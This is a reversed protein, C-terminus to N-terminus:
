RVFPNRAGHVGFHLHCGTSKGAGPAGPKGGMYAILQGQSVNTGPAVLISQLHGYNTVVGNPHLITLYNGAGFNWGFKTKLVTGQAVAYIPDGCDGDFDVANYWHLGQSIRRSLTPYIFYNEALPIRVSFDGVIKPKKAPTPVVGGPIILIDGIFIDEENSLENFAVIEKIEGRYTKAIETLTDGKKVYYLAGSVPLIILKQDRKLISNKTLNNAWLLTDLSIDFKGSISVLTDGQQVMYEIIEKSDFNPEDVLGGLVKFSPIFVPSIALLSNEQIINLDPPEIKKKQELFGIQDAPRNFFDTLPKGDLPKPALNFLFIGFFIVLIAGFCVFPDKYSGEIKKM